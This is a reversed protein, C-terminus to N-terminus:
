SKRVFVWWELCLICLGLIAFWRWWDQFSIPANRYGAQGGSFKVETIPSIKSEEDDRLQVYISRSEKGVQMKYEGVKNELRLARSEPVEVTQKDPDQLKGAEAPIRVRSAGTVVSATETASSLFDLANSIFIPFSPSLPFDSELPNFGVRIIRKPETFAVIAPGSKTEAAVSGGSSEVTGVQEFYVTDLDIGEMLNSRPVPMIAANKSANQGRSFALVAPANVASEKVGDFVVLDYGGPGSKLGDPVSASRDLSIRPDLNLARELFFDGPSVLLAKIQDRGIACAAYNDTKLWDDADLRAELVKVGSPITGTHGWTRDAGVTLASSFIPKSDGYVTISGKASDLGYNKVGVFFAKAGAGDGVGLASVALNRSSEGVKQFVVSVKGPSFNSAPPFAGDSLIAIRGGADDGILSVALRLAQSMDNAAVTPQLSALSSQVRSMDSTLSCIVRPVVGAEIVAVRDGANVSAVAASALKKAAELRSPSVDTAAMSASVDIVLVTVKGTLGKQAVQPRAFAFFILSLALLQLLLLLNWRPRQFLSNARVEEVNKPWLFTAPVEMQRRKMKLLYLAFIFLGLGVLWPWAGLNLFNLSGM